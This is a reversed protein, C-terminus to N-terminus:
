YADMYAKVHGVGCFFSGSAPAKQCDDMFCTANERIFVKYKLAPINDRQWSRCSPGGLATQKRAMGMVCATLPVPFRQQMLALRPIPAPILNPPPIPPLPPPPPPPLPYILASLPDLPDIAPTEILCVGFFFFHHISCIDRRLMM